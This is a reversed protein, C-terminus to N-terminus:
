REAAGAGEAAASLWGMAVGLAVTVGGGGSTSLAISEVPEAGVEFKDGSETM